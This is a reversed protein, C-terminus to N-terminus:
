IIRSGVPASADVTLWLPKDTSTALLMGESTVGAVTRPELNIIAIFKKGTFDEPKYHQAGGAIITKKKDQGIELELKIIKSRGPIPEANTVQVVRIDMKKFEDYTVTSM